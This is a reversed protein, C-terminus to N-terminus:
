KSGTVSKGDIIRKSLYLHMEDDVYGKDGTDLWGECLASPSHVYVPGPQDISGKCRIRISEPSKGVCFAQEPELWANSAMRNSSILGGAETQGYALTVFTAHNNFLAFDTFEFPAGGCVIEDVKWPITQMLSRLAIPTTFLHSFSNFAIHSAHMLSDSQYPANIEYSARAEEAMLAWSLGASHWPSALILLRHHAQIGFAEVSIRANQILKERSIWTCKPTGTSGSTFLGVYVDGTTPIQPIVLMGNVHRPPIFLMSIDSNLLQKIQARGEISIDVRLYGDKSSDSQLTQQQKM